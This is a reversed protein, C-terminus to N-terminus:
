IVTIKPALRTLAQSRLFFAYGVSGCIVGLFFTYNCNKAGWISDAKTLDVPQYHKQHSRRDEQYM